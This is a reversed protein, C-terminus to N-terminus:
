VIELRKSDFSKPECAYVLVVRVHEKSRSIWGGALRREPREHTSGNVIIVDLDNDNDYDFFAAGNGSMDVIYDKALGGSV